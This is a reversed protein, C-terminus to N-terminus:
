NSQYVGNIQWCYTLGSTFNTETSLTSTSTLVLNSFNAYNAASCAGVYLAGAFGQATNFATVPLSFTVPASSVVTGTVQMSFHVVKGFQSYYSTSSTTSLNGLSPSYSSWAGPASTGPQWSTAVGAGNGTLVYGSTPTNSPLPLGIVSGYAANGALAPVTGSSALGLAAYYGNATNEAQFQVTSDGNINVQRPTISTNFGGTASSINATQTSNVWQYYTSGSLGNRIEFNGSFVAALTASGSAAAELAIGGSGSALFDGGVTNTGTGSGIIASSGTGNSDAEFTNGNYTLSIPPALLSDVSQWSTAGSGNTELVYGSTGANPPLILSYATAGTAPIGLSITGLGPAPIDFYVNQGSTLTLGATFDQMATFFNLVDVAAITYNFDQVKLVRTQGTSIGSDDFRMKKTPDTSNYTIVTTDPVPLLGSCAGFSLHGAGDSCLAGIADAGPLTWFASSAKASSATYTCGTGNLSITVSTGSAATVAQPGNMIAACGTGAAGSIVIVSGTSIVPATTFTLVMPNAATAATIVITPITTPAILGVFQRSTSDEVLLAGGAAASAPPLIILPDSVKTQGSAVISLALFLLKKM